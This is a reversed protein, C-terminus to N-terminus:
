GNGWVAVGDSGGGVTITRVIKAAAIDIVAVQGAAKLTVYALKGDRSITVGQPSAATGNPGAHDMPPVQIVARRTRTAVDMLHIRESGPDTVVATKGDPTIALRYPLEFGDLAAVVTDRETDIVYVRPTQRGGVWVEKGDPTVAIGEIQTGVPIVRAQRRGPVDIESVTGSVINTTFATRGDPVLVVMHTTAQDTAITTDIAGSALDVVLLRKLAECTVLLKADGPLFQMGHPRRNEGLDITRPAADSTLDIVMLANGVSERTGYISIVATRGDRSIAAEHPATSTPLTRLTAGTALDIVSV